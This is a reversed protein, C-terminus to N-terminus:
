FGAQLDHQIADALEKEENKEDEEEEEENNKEADGQESQDSSEEQEEVRSAISQAESQAKLLESKRKVEELQILLESLEREEKEQKFTYKFPDFKSIEFPSPLYKKTYRFRSKVPNERNPYDNVMYIRVIWNETTYVETFYRLKFAKLGIDVSRAVDYGYRKGDAKVEDFRYYSLRYIMSDLMTKSAKHGQNYAGDQNYFNEEKIKPYYEAKILFIRVLSERWGCFSILIM